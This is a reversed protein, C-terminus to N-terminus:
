TGLHQPSLFKGRDKTSISGPDFGYMGPMSQAVQDADSIWYKRSSIGQPISILTAM